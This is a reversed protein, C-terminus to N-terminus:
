TEPKLSGAKRRCFERELVRFVNGECDQCYASWGIKRVQFKPVRVKGGNKEVKSLADDISEVDITCIFGALVASGAVTERELMGGHIGPDQDSGTIVYWYPVPGDTKRFIWGFTEQYFAAIRNADGAPIEFQVVRAM